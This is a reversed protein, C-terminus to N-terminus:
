RDRFLRLYIKRSIGRLPKKGETRIPESWQIASHPRQCPVCGLAKQTVIRLVYFTNKFILQCLVMLPLIVQLKSTFTGIIFVDMGM